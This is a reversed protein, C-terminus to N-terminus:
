SEFIVQAMALDRSHTLSLKISTGGIENFRDLARGALKISPPGYRGRVVEIDRWRVGHSWGTGLAKMVAEKAAFRAAYSSVRSARRECYEVEDATFVRQQFRRGQRSLVGEVRSIEIIDIGISLIM